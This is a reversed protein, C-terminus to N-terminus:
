MVGVHGVQVCVCVCVGAIAVDNAVGNLVDSFSVQFTQVSEIIQSDSQRLVCGLSNPSVKQKHEHLSHSLVV